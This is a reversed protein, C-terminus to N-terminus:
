NELDISYVDVSDLKGDYEWPKDFENYEGNIIDYQVALAERRTKTVKLVSWNGYLNDKTYRGIVISLKKYEETDFDVNIEYGEPIPNRFLCHPAFFLGEKEEPEKEEDEEEKFEFDEEDKEEMSGFDLTVVVEEHYELYLKPM